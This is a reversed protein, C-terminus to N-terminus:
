KRTGTKLVLELLDLYQRVPERYGLAVTRSGIPMSNGHLQFDLVAIGGRGLLHEEGM